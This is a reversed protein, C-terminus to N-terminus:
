DWAGLFNPFGGSKWRIRKPVSLTNVFQWDVWKLNNIHCNTRDGDVHHAVEGAMSPRNFLQLVLSHVMFSEAKNDVSVGFMLHGSPNKVKLKLYRSRLGHGNRLTRALSKVRGFNSIQYKGEYRPIDLWRECDQDTM